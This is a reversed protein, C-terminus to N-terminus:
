KYDNKKEARRSKFFLKLLRSCDQELIGGSYKLQHNHYTKDACQDQTILMGTKGDYAGFVVRDIRAHVMAGVCMMCPELTVYLTSEIIRYNNVLSGAQRLAQIEAHASPDNLTVMKNHGSGIIKNEKVVVAGVPVEKILQAQHAMEIAKQMWYEDCYEKKIM